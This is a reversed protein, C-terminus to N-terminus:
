NNILEAVYKSVILEGIYVPFGSVSVAVQVEHRVMRQGVFKSHDLCHVAPCSGDTLVDSDLVLLGPVDSLSEDAIAVSSPHKLM